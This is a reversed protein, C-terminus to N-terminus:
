SFIWKKVVKWNIENILFYGVVYIGCLLGIFTEISM